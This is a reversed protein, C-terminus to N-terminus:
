DVIVYHMIKELIIKVANKLIYMFKLGIMSLLGIIILHRVVHFHDRGRSFSKIYHVCENEKM